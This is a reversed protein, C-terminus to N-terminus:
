TPLNPRETVKDNEIAPGRAKAKEELLMVYTMVTPGIFYGGVGLVIAVIIFRSSAFRRKANKATSSSEAESSM